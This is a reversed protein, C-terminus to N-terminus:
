AIIGLIKCNMYALITELNNLVLIITLIANPKQTNNISNNSRYKMKKKKKM